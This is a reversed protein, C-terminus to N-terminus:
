WAGCIPANRLSSRSVILTLRLGGEGEVLITKFLAGAVVSCGSSWWCHEELGSSEEGKACEGRGDGCGWDGLRAGDGGCDQVEAVSCVQCFPLATSVPAWRM